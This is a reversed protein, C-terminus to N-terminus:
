ERISKTSTAISFLIVSILVMLLGIMFFGLGGLTYPISFYRTENFLEIVHLSLIIGITIIILGPIGLYRLPHHIAIKELLLAVVESCHTMPNKTSTKGGTNYIVTVKQETIKLEKKAGDVLIESDVGFGNTTIQIKSIAKKSYSRFGGQTDEFPLDAALKTIKDLMKNGFKRYSPMDKTDNFRNGIVIDFKDIEIPKILLPIEEPLFQGDGDITIVVDANEKKAYEFLSKLAFGKGVNKENRIVVAGKEEAIKTTKDNSGDDFVLVKDVFKKTRSVIDGITKEENYAPICAIKL